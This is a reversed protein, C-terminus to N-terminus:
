RTNSVEDDVVVYSNGVFAGINSFLTLNGVYTGDNSTLDDTAQGNYNGCMGRTKLKYSKSVQVVVTRYGDFLVSLGDPTRLQVYNGKYEIRFCSGNYALQLVRFDISPPGDLRLSVQQM